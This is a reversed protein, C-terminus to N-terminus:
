SCMSNKCLVQPWTNTGVNPMECSGLVRTEPSWFGEESKQPHRLWTYVGVCICM